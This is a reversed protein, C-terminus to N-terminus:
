SKIIGSVAQKFFLIEKEPKQPLPPIPLDSKLLKLLQDDDMYVYVGAVNYYSRAGDFNSLVPVGAILMEIIRTLAGSTPPQHVILIDTNILTDSLDEETLEGIVKINSSKATTKLQETGYGAISLDFFNLGNEEIFQIRDIMGMRTPLNIASGLMLVKKRKTSNRINNTRAMRINLLYDYRSSEPYYPLYFANVGFQRFLLTDEISIAFVKDCKKFIKIEEIFWDPSKRNTIGSRQGPVLSELNHPLGIIKYGKRRFYPVVFTNELRTSEWLLIRKDDKNRGFFIGKFRNALSLTCYFRYPHFCRKIILFVKFFLLLNRFFKVFYYFSIKPNEMGAPIREWSLGSDELLDSIQATRKDGGHGSSNSEFLTYRLIELNM